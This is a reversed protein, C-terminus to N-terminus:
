ATRHSTTGGPTAREEAEALSLIAPVGVEHHLPLDDDAGIALVRSPRM